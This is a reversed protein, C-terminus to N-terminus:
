EKTRYLDGADNAAKTRTASNENQLGTLTASPTKQKSKESDGCGCLQLVLLMSLRNCLLRVGTM